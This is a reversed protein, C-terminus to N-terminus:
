IAERITSRSGILQSLFGNPLYVLEVIKLPTLDLYQPSGGLFFPSFCMALEVVKAELMLDAIVEQILHKL